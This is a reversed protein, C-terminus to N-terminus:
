PANTGFHASSRSANDRGCRPGRRHPCVVPEFKLYALFAHLALRRDALRMETAAQSWARHLPAQRPLSGFRESPRCAGARVDAASCCWRWAVRSFGAAPGILNLMAKTLPCKSFITLEDCPTRRVVEFFTARSGNQERGSNRSAIPFSSKKSPPRVLARVQSGSILLCAIRTSKKVCNKWSLWFGRM